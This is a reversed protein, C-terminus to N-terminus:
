MIGWPINFRAEAGQGDAYGYDNSESGALIIATGDPFIKRITNGVTAYVNGDSDVAIGMPAGRNADNFTSLLTTKAGNPTIKFIEFSENNAVYLNGESDIDLDIGSYDSVTTVTVNSLYTPITIVFDELSATTIGNATVTIQGNTAGLPVITNIRQKGINDQYVYEAEAVIGNFKVISTNNLLGSVKEPAVPPIFYNGYITVPSGIIGSNPRFGTIVPGPEQVPNIEKVCALFILAMSAILAIRVHSLDIKKM